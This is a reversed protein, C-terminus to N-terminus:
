KTNSYIYEQSPFKLFFRKKTRIYTHHFGGCHWIANLYAPTDKQQMEGPLDEM